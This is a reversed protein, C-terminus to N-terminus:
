FLEVAGLYECERGDLAPNAVAVIRAM